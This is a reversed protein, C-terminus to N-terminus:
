SEGGFLRLRAFGDPDGTEGHGQCYDVPDACAPCIGLTACMDSAAAIVDAPSNQDISDLLDAAFFRAAAWLIESENPIESGTM